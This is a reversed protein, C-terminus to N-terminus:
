KSESYRKFKKKVYFEAGRRKGLILPLSIMGLRVIFDSSSMERKLFYKICKFVLSSYPPIKDGNCYNFYGCMLYLYVEKALIEIEAITRCNDCNAVLKLMKRFDELMRRNSCLIKHENELFKNYDTIKGYSSIGSGVRFYTLKRSTHLVNGELLSIFLLAMDPTIDIGSIFPEYKVLIDKRISMSSLNHHFYPYHMYISGVNKSTIIVDSHPQREKLLKAYFNETKEGNIGIYEQSNHLMVIDNEKEFVRKVYEVKDEKFMDDDELFFVIDVDDLNDIAYSIKKGIQPYNAEIISLNGIKAILPAERRLMDANDTVVIVQDPLIIQRLLSNLAQAIYNYRKYVTLIVASKM